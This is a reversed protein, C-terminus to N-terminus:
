RSLSLYILTKKKAAHAFKKRPVVSAKNDIRLTLQAVARLAWAQTFSPLPTMVKSQSSVTLITDGQRAAGGAPAM